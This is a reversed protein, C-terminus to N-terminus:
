CMSNIKYLFRWKIQNKMNFLLTFLQYWISTTGCVNLAMSQAALHASKTVINSSCKFVISFHFVTDSAPAHTHTKSGDNAFNRCIGNALSFPLWTSSSIPFFPSLFSVNISALAYSFLASILWVQSSFHWCQWDHWCHPKNLRKINSKTVCPPQPPRYQITPSLYLLAQKADDDDEEEWPM